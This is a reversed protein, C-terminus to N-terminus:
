IQDAIFHFINTDSDLKKDFIARLKTSKKSTGIM